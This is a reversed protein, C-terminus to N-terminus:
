TQSNERNGAKVIKFASLGLVGRGFTAMPAIRRWYTEPNGTNPTERNRSRQGHMPRAVRQITAAPARRGTEGQHARSTLKRSKRIEPNWSEPTEQKRSKPLHGNEGIGFFWRRPRAFAYRLARPGGYL